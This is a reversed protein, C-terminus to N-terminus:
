SGTFFYREFIFRIPSFRYFCEYFLFTKEAPASKCPLLCSVVFWIKFPQLIASCLFVDSCLVTTNFVWLGYLKIEIDVVPVKVFNNKKYIVKNIPLEHWHWNDFAIDLSYFYLDGEVLSDTREEAFQLISVSSITANPLSHAKSKIPNFKTKLLCLHITYISPRFKSFILM